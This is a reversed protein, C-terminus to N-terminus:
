TASTPACSGPSSPSSARATSSSSLSIVFWSVEPKSLEGHWDLADSLFAFKTALAKPPSLDDREGEAGRQVPPAFVTVRGVRRMRRRTTQLAREAPEAVAMAPQLTGDEALLVYKDGLLSGANGIFEALERYYSTWVDALRRSDKVLAHALEVALTSREDASWGDVYTPLRARVFSVLGDLREGLGSWLPYAGVAQSHQAAATISFTRGNYTWRRAHRPGAWGIELGGADTMKLAPVVPADSFETVGAATAIGSAVRAPLDTTTEFSQTKRWCMLDVVARARDQSSLDGATEQGATAAWVVTKAALDAASELLMANLRIKGDLSKRNATPFFSAHLYGRFPAQAQEGMPLYTFLRSTPPAAEDLRVALAVEGPGEWEQWNSHLQMQEIGAVIAGIMTEEAISRRALLFRGAPGLDALAVHSPADRVVRESRTLALLQTEAGDAARVRVNLSTLRSLFLLIPVTMKALADIEGQVAQVARADRLPLAVVTAFGRSAFSRVVPAQADLWVPVHFHPLDRRALELAQPKLVLAALDDNSAFRFCFGAFRGADKGGEAQSYIEPSDCVHRVSRFGLGKNGISQGPPKSSLGLDSLAEVNPRGFPTGGNAVYLTPAVGPGVDLFIEIKGDAREEPHVDHANQILEILFRGHYDAAVQESVSKATPYIKSLYEGRDDITGEFGRMKRRAWEELFRRAEPDSRSVRDTADILEADDMAAM